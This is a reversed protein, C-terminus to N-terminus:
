MGQKGLGFLQADVIHVDIVETSLPLHAGPSGFAELLKLLWFHWSIESDFALETISRM